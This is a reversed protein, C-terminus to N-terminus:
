DNRAWGHSHVLGEDYGDQNHHHVEDPAIDEREEAAPPSALGGAVTAAVAYKLGAGARSQRSAAFGDPAYYPTIRTMNPMLLTEMVSLGSPLRAQRQLSNVGIHALTM